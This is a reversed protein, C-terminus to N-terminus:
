HIYRPHAQGLHKRERLEVLAHRRAVRLVMPRKAMDQLMRVLFDGGLFHPMIVFSAGREYLRLAEDIDHSTVIVTAGKRYREAARVILMSVEEEPITSIVYRVREWPLSALLDEDGADGYRVPMGQASVREVIAPDYDIVLLSARKKHFYEMLAYGIRNHGFLLFEPKVTEKENVAVAGAREFLAVVPGFVRILPESYHMFYTSAAISILGVLTILTMFEVPVAGNDFGRAILIFSFESIQALALGAPVYARRTYGLLGMVMMVVLPKGIIVLLSLLLAAPLVLAISDLDASLGLLVFFVIIFFDRISRLRASIEFRYVSVSLAVGALLAGVEVSFGWTYFVGAVVFLWALSFIFLLERSRAISKVVHPLIYAGAIGLVFLLAGGRALLVLISADGADSLSFTSMGMLLVVAVVDQVLLIGVTITGYLKELHGRETLVHVVVITSSFALAAALYLSPLVGYGFWHGMLFALAGIVAIQIVGTVLAVGGIKKLVTPSLGLGVIFLLLAIGIQSLAEMTAHDAGLLLPSVLIGTAIYAIILPQRLLSAIISLGGALAVLLGLEIFLTTM